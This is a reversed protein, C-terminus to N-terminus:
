EIHYALDLKTWVNTDGFPSCIMTCSDALILILKSSTLLAQSEVMLYFLIIFSYLISGSVILANTLLGKKGDSEGLTLGFHGSLKPYSFSRSSTLPSSPIMSPLLNRLKQKERLHHNKIHEYRVRM